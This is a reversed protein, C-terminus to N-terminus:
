SVFLELGCVLFELAGVFFQLGCLFFQLGGVFLHRRDVILQLVSVGLHSLKAIVQRIKKGAHINGDHHHARICPDPTERGLSALSEPQGGAIDSAGDAVDFGSELAYIQIVQDGQRHGTHSEVFDFGLVFPTAPVTQLNPGIPGRVVLDIARHDRHDINRSRLM